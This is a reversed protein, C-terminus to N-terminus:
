QLLLYINIAIVPAQVHLAPQTMFIFKAFKVVSVLLQTFTDYGGCVNVSSGTM